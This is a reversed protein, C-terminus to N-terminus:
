NTKIKEKQRYYSYWNYVIDQCDEYSHGTLNQPQEIAMDKLNGQVYRDILDLDDKNVSVGKLNIKSSFNAVPKATGTSRENVLTAYGGFDSDQMAMSGGVGAPGTPLPTPAYPNAGYNYYPDKQRTLKKQSKVMFPM